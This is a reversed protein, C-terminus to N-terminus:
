ILLFIKTIKIHWIYENQNFVMELIKRYFMLSWSLKIFALTKQCLKPFNFQSVLIQHGKQFLIKKGKEIRGLPLMCCQWIFIFILISRFPKYELINIEVLLPLKLCYITM